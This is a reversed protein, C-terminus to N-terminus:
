RLSAGRSTPPLFQSRWKITTLIELDQPDANQTIRKGTAIGHLSIRRIKQQMGGVYALGHKIHEVLTGRKVDWSRTSGQPRRKGGKSPQLRHLMRRNLRIPIWYYLGKETPKEAGTVSAALVWSDVCHTNFRRKSKQPSKHLRYKERLEKTDFGEKIHLNLRLERIQNYFWQKGQELPSFNVNWKRQWKKTVAKIDEVVVDSIPLIKCLQKLIRLKANWRAHTSPPLSKKNRLRNNFRAPRRWCKRFRRARRMIRRQEVAKKVHIPAESMGNLVTHQTGVVSFGEFKSGPDIGLALQQNNSEIEKKLIICFVGLKNWYARAKGEKLLLRARAPTTPMLPHMDKDLVPIRM